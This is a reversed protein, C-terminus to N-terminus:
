CLHCRLTGCSHCRNWHMSWEGCSGLTKPLHFIGTSYWTSNKAVRCHRSSSGWPQAYSIPWQGFHFFRWCRYHGGIKRQCWRVIQESYRCLRYSVYTILNYMGNLLKWHREGTIEGYAVLNMANKKKINNIVVKRLGHSDIVNFYKYTSMKLRFVERTNQVFRSHRNCEALLKHEWTLVACYVCIWLMSMVSLAMCEFLHRIPLFTLLLM